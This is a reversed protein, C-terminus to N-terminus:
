KGRRKIHKYYYDREGKRYAACLKRDIQCWCNEWPNKADLCLPRFRTDWYGLRRAFRYKEVITMNPFNKWDKYIKALKNM